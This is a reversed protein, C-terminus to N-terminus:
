RADAYKDVLLGVLRQVIREQEQESDSYNVARQVERRILMERWQDRLYTNGIGGIGYAPAIRAIRAGVVSFYNKCVSLIREKAAQTATLEALPRNYFDLALLQIPSALFQTAIPCTMQSISLAEKKELGTKEQLAKSMIEPLVFSSGIVMCDRVGWLGYTVLPVSASIGSAGFMKAYAKDKMMSTASNVATTGVFIGFKSASKTDLDSYHEKHEVFTKISNAAGYTAAYVGWMMLFTPSRLYIAPHKLMTVTSELASRMISHTGAARQVIAKDVITLFPAVGFAVAGASLNDGLLKEGLNSSVTNSAKSQSKPEVHPRIIVKPRATLISAAESMEM